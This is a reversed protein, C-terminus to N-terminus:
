WANPCIQRRFGLRASLEDGRTNVHSALKEVVDNAINGTTLEQGLCNIDYIHNYHEYTSFAKAFTAIEDVNPRMARLGTDSHSLDRGIRRAVIGEPVRSAVSVLFMKDLASAEQLTFAQAVDAHSKTSAGHM